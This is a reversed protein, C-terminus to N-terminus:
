AFLKGYFESVKNFFDSLSKIFWKTTGNVSSDRGYVAYLKTNDTVTIEDGETYLQGSGDPNLSWGKFEYMSDTVKPGALIVAKDGSKYITKDHVTNKAMDGVDYKVFFTDDSYAYSLYDFRAKVYKRVVDVHASFNSEIANTDATGFFNWLVIDMNVSSRIDNSWQDINNLFTPYYENVKTNWIQQVKMQFDNHSFAQALLANRGENHNGIFCTQIFLLSPDAVNDVHNILNNALAFGFGLDFDWAPGAFLKGNVDKYLYFSSSCGDFNAAFEDIIYMAALSDVDIYDSYHKGLSNYGTSSYLADEFEQYYSSIYEVQAKSAYEPTKVVVAQGIDTVFGSAENVYRYIKELELLYGGTIEEPNNPIDAYKYSSWNRSNQAGKLPYEDLDKDNVDETKGELDYIDVRNSDIEVKETILYLGAYEGNLYLDVHNTDSTVDVGIKQAFDYALMNRLFSFDNANALLCWKKSKGMGFLDAKSDLKINYPKKNLAWTSNGRGKIYDLVGGYEVNGNSNVILIDGSEKHSKDANVSDMSGSETTIFISGLASAKMVVVEYSTAGCTLIFNDGQAFVNTSKGNELQTEGCYVPADADFSVILNSRDAYSPLFIYYKGDRQYWQIESAVTEEDNTPSTVSFDTITSNSAFVLVSLFSCLLIVAVSLLSFRITKKM